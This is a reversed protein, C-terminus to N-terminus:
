TLSERRAIASCRSGGEMGGAGSIMRPNALKERGMVGIFPSAGGDCEAELKLPVFRVLLVMTSQGCGVRVFRWVTDWTNLRKTLWVSFVFSRM